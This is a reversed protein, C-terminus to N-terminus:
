WPMSSKEVDNVLHEVHDDDGQEGQIDAAGEGFM